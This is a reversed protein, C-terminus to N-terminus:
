VDVVFGPPPCADDLGVEGERRIRELRQEVAERFRRAGRALRLWGAGAMWGRVRVLPDRRGLVEQPEGAGLHRRAAPEHAAGDGTVLVRVRGAADALVGLVAPAAM